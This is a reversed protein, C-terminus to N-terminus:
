LEHFRDALPALDSDAQAMKLLDKRGLLNKAKLLWSWAEDLRGLQAHYCALNYVLTPEEPFLTVVASLIKLAPELGGEPARRMAYAQHLWGTVREPACQVLARAVRLAAVWDKRREHIMWEIELVDPHQRAAPSLGDLEALAEAPNGLELWGLAANAFHTDPPELAKTM